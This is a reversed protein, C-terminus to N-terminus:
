LHFSVQLIEAPIEIELKEKSVLHDPFDFISPVADKRLQLPGSIVPPIYDADKFHLSCLKATSTPEFNKCKIAHIWKTFCIKDKVPDPFRYTFM